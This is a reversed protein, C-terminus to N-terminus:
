LYSSKNKEISTSCMLRLRFRLKIRLYTRLGKPSRAVVTAVEVLEREFEKIERKTFITEMDYAVWDVQPDMGDFVNADQSKM